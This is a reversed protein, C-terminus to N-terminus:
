LREVRERLEADSGCEAALLAARDDPSLELARSFLSEVRKPDAAM